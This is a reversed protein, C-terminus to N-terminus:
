ARTAELPHGHQIWANTGGDIDLAALTDVTIQKM